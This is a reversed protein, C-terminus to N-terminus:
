WGGGGPPDAGGRGLTVEVGTQIIRVAEIEVDVFQPLFRDM